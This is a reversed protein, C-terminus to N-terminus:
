TTSKAVTYDVDDHPLLLDNPSCNFVRLLSSLLEPDILYNHCKRIRTLTAVTCNLEDALRHVSWGRKFTYMEINRGYISLIQPVRKAGM